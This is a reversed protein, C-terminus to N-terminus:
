DVTIEHKGLIREPGVLTVDRPKVPLEFKVHNEGPELWVRRKGSSKGSKWSVDIPVHFSTEDTGKNVVDITLGDAAAHIAGTLQPEGKGYVFEDFFTRWTKKTERELVARFDETDANAYRFEMNFARLTRWWAADDDVCHRLTNLVWAGKAYILTTYAAGSDVADGRYLRSGPGFAERSREFYADAAARGKTKELYVAEAYTGFGEHIWFHGWTKASVANGWWEHASEHVLIYDFGQNMGAYRDEVGERECWKPWSSGYGVATSHEMGWFPVEVLAYKSKPFPFPGFAESYIALMGPVDEFQLKAKEVSEPLVYYAVDLPKALGALELKKEMVVYPAVDLTIAYTECPYEHLWHFTEREGKAERGALRGNSVAYLGKPVTANVFTRAPKDEPHWFSDKCPWWWSAGVGQCAVTVWPQGAKTTKWHVGEFGDKAKPKGAYRVVLRVREGQKRSTPLDAYVRDEERRVDLAKGRMPAQPTLEGSLEEIASIEMDRRLDLQVRELTPATVALEIGVDGAISQAIPDVTLDLRYALVDYRGRMDDTTTARASPFLAALGLLVLLTTRANMRAHLM